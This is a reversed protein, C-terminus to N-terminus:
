MRRVAVLNARLRVMRPEDGFLNDGGVGGRSLASHVIRGAGAWLAVHSVRGREAFFLLDGAEYGAGDTAPKVDRGQGFQQDSDRPLQIGRAAYVAQTLGSCDIGWETRGGWLYPAGAYWHQALEPVALFRAETRLESEPRVAGSAVSGTQGDALEVAGGRRLALRAGIPLRRREGQAATQIEAGLSRATARDAWDQAWEAPGTALYGVHTYAIYGDAARVRLWDDERQLIELREGHLVESVRAATINADAFLPALAATVVAARDQGVAADPLLRIDTAIGADTALRRLAALADRSTTAGALLPAAHQAGAEGAMAVDFVGLRRDPVWKRRVDDIARDLKDM